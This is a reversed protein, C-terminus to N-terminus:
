TLLELAGKGTARMQQGFVQSCLFYGTLNVALVSNWEALSLTALPGPRLVGANNVLVDCPGLEAASRQAAANVSSEDSVDCAIAVAVAQAGALRIAEVTGASGQTDRDLVAVRAGSAAFAMAISRGIGSGAGTVVCVRGSLGMPDHAGSM